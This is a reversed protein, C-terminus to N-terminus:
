NKNHITVTGLKMQTTLEQATNFQEIASEPSGNLLKHARSYLNALRPMKLKRLTDAMMALAPSLNADGLKVRDLENKLVLVASELDGPKNRKLYIKVERQNITTDEPFLERYKIVNELAEDFKKIGTKADIMLGLAIQDNPENELRKDLYLIAKTYNLNKNDNDNSLDGKLIYAQSIMGLVEKIDNALKYDELFENSIRIVTDLKEQVYNPNEWVKYPDPNKAKKLLGNIGNIRQKINTQEIKVNNQM